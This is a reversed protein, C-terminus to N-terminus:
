NGVFPPPGGGFEFTQPPNLVILDGVQLTNNTVESMTDGSVGLVVVVPTLQGNELTYVVREGDQIRVARNPIILVDELQDIVINVAATMGPRVAEDPDTIEITVTFEVIGQNVTGVPDIQVVVGQYDEGPIGDFQLLADQGLQIQNIDVETVGVDVLMHSLDDLRFAPTGASVLDGVKTDVRTITGNFPAEMKPLNLTAEIAAIRTEARQIDEQNAGSLLEDYQEQADELSAQAVELEAEAISINLDSATGQLNNLRRVADDYEQQARALAAQLNARIINEESKNEYPAFNKQAKDLRDKLIIVTAQASDIDTQSASTQLGNLRYEADQIVKEADAIAQRAQALALQSAPELLDDLTQRADILDAEALIINQALSTKRLSALQEGAAVEEGLVAEVAEVTGSTQWVLQATQNARVTGTAGITATLPGPEASVTQLNALAAAQQQEQNRQFLYYAGAGVVALVIVIIIFRRM